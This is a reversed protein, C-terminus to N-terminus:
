FHMKLRGNVMNRAHATSSLLSLPGLSTPSLDEGALAMRLALFIWAPHHRRTLDKGLPTFAAAAESYVPYAFLQPTPDGDWARVLATDIALLARAIPLPMAELGCSRAWTSITELETSKAWPVAQWLREVEPGTWVLRLEYEVSVHHMLPSPPGFDEAEQVM